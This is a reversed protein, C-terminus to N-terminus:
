KARGDPNSGKFRLIKTYLTKRDIGLWLAAATRNGGFRALASRIQNTEYQAAARATASVLNFGPGVAPLQADPKSSTLSIPLDLGDVVATRAATIARRIQHDLERVNGPWDHVLLAQRAADSLTLDLGRERRIREFAYGVLLGIDDGRARLPPLRLVHADLRYYLDRRFGAQSVLAELDANTAAVIRLDVPIRRTGGVRTLERRELARLLKAQAGPPMEGIEDLFLTGRHALEFKGPKRETAGTFAGREHGFLESELLDAPIAACNIDVFPGNARASHRHLARAVLEKGTGTEGVILAPDSSEAVRPILRFVERMGPCDGVIDDFGPLGGRADLWPDSGAPLPVTRQSRGASRPAGKAQEVAREVVELLERPSFPKALYDSIGARMAEVVNPYSAYGTLVIGPLHPTSVRLRRFTELGSIGSLKNDIIALDIHRGGAVELAAEGSPAELVEHGARSLTFRVIGQVQPDDDVALITAM